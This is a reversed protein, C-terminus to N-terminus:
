RERLFDRLQAACREPAGNTINHALGEFVIWRHNPIRRLKEWGDRRNVTDGGGVVILTPAEIEHVRDGLDLTVMADLFRCTFERDMHSAESLMWAIFGPEVTNPDVRAAVTAGLLGDVGKARITPLWTEVHAEPTHYSFGPTTSFLALKAVRDPRTIALWQAVYGGASSGSVHAREAGLLDLLEIVDRTLREITVPKDPGPAESDGHGRADLRVVRFHRALTPVWAYFRRLNSMAAHLLVLTPATTWPDTFDDIAYALRVGDSTTFTRTETM